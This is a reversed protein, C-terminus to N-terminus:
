RGGDAARRIVPAEGGPFVESAWSRGVDVAVQWSRALDIGKPARYNNCM